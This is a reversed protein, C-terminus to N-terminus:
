CSMLYLDELLIKRTEIWLKDIYKVDDTYKLLYELGQVILNSLLKKDSWRGTNMEDSYKKYFEIYDETRTYEGACSEWDQGDKEPLRVDCEMNLKTLFDFM